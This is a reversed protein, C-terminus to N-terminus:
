ITPVCKVEISCYICSLKWLPIRLWRDRLVSPNFANLPVLGRLRESTVPKACYPIQEMVPKYTKKVFRLFQPVVIVRRYVKPRLVKRYCICKHEIVRPPPIYPRPLCRTPPIIPDTTIQPAYIPPPPRSRPCPCDLSVMYPHRDTREEIEQFNLISLWIINLQKHRPRSNSSRSGARHKAQPLEVDGPPACANWGKMVFAKRNGVYYFFIITHM